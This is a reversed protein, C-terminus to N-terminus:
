FAKNISIFIECTNCDLESLDHVHELMKDSKLRWLKFIAELVGSKEFVIRPM